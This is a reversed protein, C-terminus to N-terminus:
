VPIIPVHPLTPRNLSVKAKFLETFNDASFSVFEYESTVNLLCVRTFLSM